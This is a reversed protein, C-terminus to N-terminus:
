RSSDQNRPAPRAFFSEGQAATERPRRNHRDIERRALDLHRPLLLTAMARLKTPDSEQGAIQSRWRKQTPGTPVEVKDRAM